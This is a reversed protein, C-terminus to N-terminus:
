LVRRGGATRDRLAQDSRHRQQGRPRTRAVKARRGRPTVRAPRALLGELVTTAAYFVSGYIDLLTVSEDPVREPPRREEFGGDALQVLERVRVDLSASYVYQVTAIVVGTFVAYQIPVTLTLVLTVVMSVRSAWNTHWVEAVAAPRLSGAGAVILLAAVTTLPVQEIADGFLLLAIAVFLGAYM